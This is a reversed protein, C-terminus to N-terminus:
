RLVHSPNAQTGMERAQCISMLTTCFNLESASVFKSHMEIKWFIGAIRSYHGPLIDRMVLENSITIKLFEFVM